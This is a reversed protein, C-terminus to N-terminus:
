PRHTHGPVSGPGTQSNGEGCVFQTLRTVERDKEAMAVTMDGLTARLSKNAATVVQLERRDRLWTPVSISLALAFCVILGKYVKESM